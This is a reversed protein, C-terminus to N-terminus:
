ELVDTRAADFFRAFRRFDAAILAIGVIVANQEGIRRDIDNGDARRVRLVLFHCDGRQVGSLVHIDILREGYGIFARLADCARRFVRRAFRAHYKVIAIRGCYQACFLQDVLTFDAFNQRELRSIQM